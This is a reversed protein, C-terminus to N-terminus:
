HGTARTVVLVTALLTKLDTLFSLKADYRSDFFAREAFASENRASIQWLGTIGPLMRYYASGPYLIQQEPLMPRPGVLSMEGKLVNWLQPLEDLSSQRLIRGFSTIRPDNKLKQTSAWEARAAPNSQLYRALAADANPVMSRLKWMTFTKGHLGVREQRYLPSGKGTAAVIAVLLVLMPVVIPAFFLIISVDLFRKVVNRYFGKARIAPSRVLDLGDLAAPMAIPAAHRHLDKNIHM